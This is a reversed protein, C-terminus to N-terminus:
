GNAPQRLDYIVVPEVGLPTVYAIRAQARLAAYVACVEPYAECRRSIYELNRSSVIALDVRRETVDAADYNQLGGIFVATRYEHDLEPRMRVLAARLAAGLPTPEGQADLLPVVGSEILVRAHPPANAALWDFLTRRPAALADHRPVPIARPTLVALNAVIAVLALGHLAGAVRPHPAARRALVVPLAAVVLLFLALAPLVFRDYKTGMLSFLAFYVVPLSLVFRERATGLLALALVSVGISAALLPATDLLTQAYFFAGRGEIGPHALLALSSQFAFQRAFTAADLLIFPSTALFVGGAILATRLLRRARAPAGDRRTSQAGLLWILLLGGNYNAGAALGCALAAVDDARRGPQQVAAVIRGCAFLFVALFLSDVRVAESYVAHLPLVALLAAAALGTVRDWLARGLAYLAWLALAASAVSVARATFVFWREDVAFLDAPTFTPDIAGLGHAVGHVVLYTLATVGYYLSPHLFMAPNGGNYLVRLASIANGWEDGSDPVYSPLAAIRALLGAAIVLLLALEVAARPLRARTM